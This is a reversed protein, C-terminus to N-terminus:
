KKSVSWDISYYKLGPWYNIVRTFINKENNGERKIKGM